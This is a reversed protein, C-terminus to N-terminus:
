SAAETEFKEWGMKDAAGLAAEFGDGLEHESRSLVKKTGCDRSIIWLQRTQAFFQLTTREGDTTKIFQTIM